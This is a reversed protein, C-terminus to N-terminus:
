AKRRAMGILGILGSGFLWVAAPVPVATPTLLLTYSTYPENAFTATGNLLADTEPGDFGISIYDATPLMTYTSLTTTQPEIGLPSDFVAGILQFEFGSWGTGTSNYIDVSVTGTEAANDFTISVTQQNNFEVDFLTAGPMPLYNIVSNGNADVSAIYAANAPQMFTTLLFAVCAVHIVTVYHSKM